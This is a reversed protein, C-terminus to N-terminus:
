INPNKKKHEEHEFRQRCIYDLFLKKKVFLCILIMIKRRHEANNTQCRPSTKRLKWTKRKRKALHVLRVATPHGM